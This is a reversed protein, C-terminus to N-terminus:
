DKLDSANLIGASALLNLRASRWEALCRTRESRADALGSQASLIELIDAAGEAYRRESSEFAAQAATLLDGSATLNLLSSHADAYAQVVEMLTTERTDELEAERVRVTAQAAEVSYHTAFGDFLPVTVTVGVTAVRTNTSTLGQYPFGNQYYNATLDITPRGASRAAVVQDEAAAVAARAAVIAPHRQETDKLWGSLDNEETGTRLDVDGALNILRGAPVGMSYLLVALAKQYTGKARNKDLSARALATTAQLTDNHSGGGKAERRKASALTERAISEDQTRDDAAAKATVAGFYAQVVAGLIKQITADRSAVAAELLAQAAHRMASRGGFDFLRWDFEGVVMTGTTDTAPSQAGSYATRDNLESVSVSLTPWDAARAVGVAAARVRINAWAARIQPNNCLALDVANALSLATGPGSGVPCTVSASDGPLVAPYPENPQGAPLPAGWPLGPIVYVCLAIALRLGRAGSAGNANM